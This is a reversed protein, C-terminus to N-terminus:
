DYFDRMVYEALRFRIRVREVQHWSGLGLCIAARIKKLAKM